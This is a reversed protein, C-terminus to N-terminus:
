KDTRKRMPKKPDDPNSAIMVAEIQEMITPDEEIFDIFQEDTMEFEKGEKKAGDRFAYYYFKYVLGIEWSAFGSLWKTLMNLPVKEAVALQMRASQSFRIPYQKGDGAKIWHVIM